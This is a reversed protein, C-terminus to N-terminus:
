AGAPRPPNTQTEGIAQPLYRDYFRQEAELLMHAAVMDVVIYGKREYKRRLVDNAELGVLLHLGLELVIVSFFSFGYSVGLVSILFFLCFLVFALIWQRHYLAWLATFIFARLNFGEAIFVATEYPRRANPDVHVSYLRYPYFIGM